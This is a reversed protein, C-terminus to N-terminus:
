PVFHRLFVALLKLGQTPRVFTVSLLCIVYSLRIQLLLSGFTVYDREPLFPNSSSVPIVFMLFNYRTAM